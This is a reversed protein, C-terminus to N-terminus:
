PPSADFYGRLSFRRDLYGARWRPDSRDLLLGQAAGWAYFAIRKKRALEPGALDSEVQKRLRAAVQAYPQADALAKFEESPSEDAALEALRVETYRAIGEQWEQLGLYRADKPSLLSEWAHRTKRFRKLAAPFSGQPAQLAALLAKSAEVMGNAIKPDEYPFPFNLMWTGTTDGGALDLAATGPYYWPQADQWQHFHEHLVTLVWPTSTAAATSEAQGIVITPIGGVAPFTALLHRDFTRPRVWVKSGLLSDEGVPQFDESPRPHRVLFENEATILLVAFPATSWGDWLRDGFRDALRFAEALRIRDTGPIEPRIAPTPAPSTAPQELPETALVVSACLILALPLTSLRRFM